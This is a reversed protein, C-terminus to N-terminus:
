WRRRRNRRNQGALVAMVAAALVVALVLFAVTTLVPRIGFVAILILLLIAILAVGIPLLPPRKNKKKVFRVNRAAAPRSAPMAAPSAPAPQTAFVKRGVAELHEIRALSFNNMLRSMQLYWYDENWESEPRFQEGNHPHVIDPMQRLVYDFAERFRNTRFAPDKHIFSKLENRVHIANRKALAEVLYESPQFM